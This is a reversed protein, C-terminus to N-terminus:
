LAQSLYKTAGRFEREKAAPNEWPEYVLVPRHGARGVDAAVGKLHYCVLGPDLPESDDRRVRRVISPKRWSRLRGAWRVHLGKAPQWGTGVDETIAAAPNGHRPLLLLDVWEVSYVAISTRAPLPAARYNSTGVEPFTFARKLPDALEPDFAWLREPYGFQAKYYPEQKDYDWKFPGSRPQREHVKGWLNFYGVALSSGASWPIVQPPLYGHIEELPEGPKYESLAYKDAPCCAWANLANEEPVIRTAYEPLEGSLEGGAWRGGM